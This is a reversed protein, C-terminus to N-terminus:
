DRNVVPPIELGVLWRALLILDALDVKGDGNLDM